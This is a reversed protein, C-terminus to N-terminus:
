EVSLDYFVSDAFKSSAESAPLDRKRVLVVESFVYRGGDGRGLCSKIFVDSAAVRSKAVRCIPLCSSEPLLFMWGPPHGPPSGATCEM